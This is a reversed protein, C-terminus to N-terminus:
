PTAPTSPQVRVISQVLATVRSHVEEADANSWIAIELSRQGRNRRGELVPRLRNQYTLRETANASGSFGDEWLCYYVWLGENAAHYVDFPLALDGVPITRSELGGALKHGAMTLCVEPTHSRALHVAVRGPDWRLFIIQTRMDGVPWIANRGEDFRLMRNVNESFPIERYGATQAPCEVTWTPGAVVKSEHRGYWSQVFVECAVLWVILAFSTLMGARARGSTPRGAGALPADVTQGAADRLSVSSVRSFKAAVAWVGLFCGVLIIIGAPDHWQAIAATGKSDAVAVLLVTRALNFFVALAFGVFVLAARRRVSLRYYAGLFLGIMLCAQLSRIGSCADEVGVLGTGIEIVNGHCIAPVGALNLLEAAATANFMALWQIVPAEIVTPWPVAVLFFLLPFRFASLPIGVRALVAFSSGVTILALAWSVLRWEPNAEQV